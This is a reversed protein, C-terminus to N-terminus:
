GRMRRFSIIAASMFIITFVSLFIIDSSITSIDAGKFLVAKFADVAYAEPNVKAFMKLWNPFSAIPYVAGSPFFLIVNLFGTLLGVIRPHKVNGLLVFMLSLLSITTLVILLLLTSFHWFNELIPIGTISMSIILIITAIITTVSLGSIILGAVIDFKSLPTLMYSEDVGLFRDMVLNFAGTTLTGLFIAMIVVGPVLSQKYDVQRYLNKDRIYTDSRERISLYESPIAKAAGTVVGRIAEASISDTNDLFLGIESIKKTVINKSFDYPLILAAKYEGNKVDAIAASSDMAMNINITKPGAEIARLNNMLKESFIGAIDQNVIVVPLSKLKGQFSNGLIILYLIPMLISMALVVPNRKLKKLDREIVAILKIM